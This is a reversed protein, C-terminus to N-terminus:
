MSGNGSTDQSQVFQSRRARLSGLTQSPTSGSNVPAITAGQTAITLAAWGATAPSTATLNVGNGTSLSTFHRMQAAGITVTTTPGLCSAGTYFTVLYPCLNITTSAAITTATANQSQTQVTSAAGRVGQSSRKRRRSLPWNQPFSRTRKPRIVMTGSNATLTITNGLASAFYYTTASTNANINIAGVNATCGSDTFFSTGTPGSLTIATTTLVVTDTSGSDQSKITVAGASCYGSQVIQSPSTNALKYPTIIHAQTASTLGGTVATITIANGATSNFYFTQASTNAAINYLNTPGTCAAGSYLTVGPPASM